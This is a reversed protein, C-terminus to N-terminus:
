KQVIYNKSNKTFIGCIVCVYKEEKKEKVLMYIVNTERVRM